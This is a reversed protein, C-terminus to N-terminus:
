PIQIPVNQKLSSSVNSIPRILWTGCITCYTMNKRIHSKFTLASFLQIQETASVLLSPAPGPFLCFLLKFNSEYISRKWNGKVMKAIVYFKVSLYILLDLLYFFGPSFFHKSHYLNLTTQKNKNKNTKKPRDTWTIWMQVSVHTEAM